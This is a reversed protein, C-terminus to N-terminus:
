KVATAENVNELYICANWEIPKINTYYDNERLTTLSNLWYQAKLPAKEWHIFYQKKGVPKMVAEMGNPKYKQITDVFRQQPKQWKNWFKGGGYCMGIVFFDDKLNQKIIQAMPTFYGWVDEQYQSQTKTHIVHNILIIKNNKNEKLKWLVNHAMMLERGNLGATKNPKAESRDLYNKYYNDAMSMAVMSNKAWWYEKKNWKEIYKEQNLKFQEVANELIITLKNKQTKTLKEKHNVRAKLTGMVKLFPAINQKLEKAFKPDVKSLYTNINDFATYWNKYFGGIDAGLFSLKNSNNKNYTKMWNILERGETWVSYMKNLGYKWVDKKVTQGKIYNDVLRSEPLGTEAMVVNFGKNEVLYKIIKYNLTMMEKCNHFGESIAVVKANGISNAIAKVDKHYNLNNIDISVANLKSWSIYEKKSNQILQEKTQNSTKKHDCSIIIILFVLILLYNKKTM